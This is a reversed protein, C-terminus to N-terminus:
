ELNKCIINAYRVNNAFIEVGSGDGFHKDAEQEGGVYVSAAAGGARHLGWDVNLGWERVLKLTFCHDGNSTSCVSDPTSSGAETCEPTNQNRHSLGLTNELM